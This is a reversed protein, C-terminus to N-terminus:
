HGGGHVSGPLVRSPEKAVRDFTAGVVEADISLNAEEKVREALETSRRENEKLRLMSRIRDRVEALPRIEGEDREELRIIHYGYNTRAIPGIEGPTRLSFAVEEFEAAMRGRGFFGLDGGKKASVADLSHERALDAFSAPSAEAKAHVQDAEEADRVLIHSVRVRGTSFEDRNEEYYSAVDQDEIVVESALRASLEELVLRQRTEAVRRRVEPDEHIGRRVAEEYLLERLVLGEVFELQQAQSMSKRVRSPLGRYAEALEEETISRDGFRAADAPDAGDTEAHACPAGVAAGVLVVMALFNRLLM